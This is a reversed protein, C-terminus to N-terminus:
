DLPLGTHKDIFHADFHCDLANAIDELDKECFNNRRFKASLNQPTCKLIVALESVSMNRKILAIRIKETMAM